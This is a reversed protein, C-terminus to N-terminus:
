LSSGTLTPSRNVFVGSSVKDAARRAPAVDGDLAFRRVLLSELTRLHGLHLGRVEVSHRHRKQRDADPRFHKQERARWETPSTVSPPSRSPQSTSLMPPASKSPTLSHKHQSKASPSYFLDHHQRKKRSLWLARTSQNEHRLDNCRVCDVFCRDNGLPVPPFAPVCRTNLGRSTTLHTQHTSQSLPCGGVQLREPTQSKRRGVVNSAVLARKPYVSRSPSVTARSQSHSLSYRIVNEWAFSRLRDITQFARGAPLHAAPTPSPSVIGVPFFSAFRRPRSTIWWHSFSSGESAVM